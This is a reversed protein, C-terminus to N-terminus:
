GVGLRVLAERLTRLDVPKTLHVGFGAELSRRRDSEMGFGSVAVAKVKPHCGRIRRLLDNGDRDPLGIDSVVIDVARSRGVALAEACSAEPTVDYGVAGLYRSLVRLTDAHDEVLLLHPRAKVEGGVGMGAPRRTLVGDGQEFPDFLRPMLERPIGMGTDKVSVVVGGGERLGSRVEIRGGEPTFKIANSLLNTLIQRLRLPDALVRGLGEGLELTLAQRRGAAEVAFERVVLRLFEGVDIRERRLSIKGHVVRSFDLLDNILRTEADINRRILELDEAVEVPLDERSMLLALTATVPTLPTRLEHSLAAIFQDKARSAADASAKAARLSAELELREMALAIPEVVSGLLTLEEESFRDRTRCGFGLTGVVRSGLALPFCAYTRLRMLNKSEDM